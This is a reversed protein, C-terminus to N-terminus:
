FCLQELKRTGMGVMFRGSIVPRQVTQSIKERTKLKRIKAVEITKAAFKDFAILTGMIAPFIVLEPFREAVKQRLTLWLQGGYSWEHTYQLLKLFDKGDLTGKRIEKKCKRLWEELESNEEELEEIKEEITNACDKFFYKLLKQSTKEFFELTPPNNNPGWACQVYYLLLANIPLLDPPSDLRLEKAIEQQLEDLKYKLPKDEAKRENVKNLVFLMADTRGQMAEVVQKLENLLKARSQDDTQKYDLIVLSFADKVRPQIVQLNKGDEVNKLGPLDLMEFQIGAPLQLLKTWLVPMLPAEIQIRPAEVNSQEKKLKHYANMVGDSGHEKKRAGLRFYIEEDELDYWEGVEWTAEPTPEVVLRSKEAHVFTLIGASMEDAEMPALRRGIM